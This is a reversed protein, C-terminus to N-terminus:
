PDTRETRTRPNTNLALVDRIRFEWLRGSRGIPRAPLRGSRRLAAVQSVRVSLLEAARRPSVWEDLDTVDPDVTVWGQGWRSMQEDIRAVVDPDRQHLYARYSRAVWKVREVPADAPFPWPDGATM